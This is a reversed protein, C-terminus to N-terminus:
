KNGRARIEKAIDHSHKPFRQQFTQAPGGCTVTCEYTAASPEEAIRACVEREDARVLEAFRELTQVGREGSLWVEIGCEIIDQATDFEGLIGAECAMEITDRM